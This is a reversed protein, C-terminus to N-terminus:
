MLVRHLGDSGIWGVYKTGDNRKVVIVEVGLPVYTVGYIVIVGKETKICMKILENFSTPVVYADVIKGLSERGSESESGSRGGDECGILSAFLALMLLVFAVGYITSNRWGMEM